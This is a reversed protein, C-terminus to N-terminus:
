NSPPNNPARAYAPVPPTAVPFAFYQPFSQQSPYYFYPQQAQTQPYLYFPTAQSDQPTQVENISWVTNQQPISISTQSRQPEERTVEAEKTFKKPEQLPVETQSLRAYKCQARSRRCTRVCRFFILLSFVVIFSIIFSTFFSHAAENPSTETPEPPTPSWDSPISCAEGNWGASCTCTGSSQDCFGSGSCDGPCIFPCGDVCAQIFYKDLDTVVAVTYVGVDAKSLFYTVVGNGLAVDAKSLSCQDDKTGYISVSTLSLSATYVKFQLYANNPDYVSTKFYTVNNSTYVSVMDQNRLDIPSCDMESHVVQGFLLLLAFLTAYVFSTMM